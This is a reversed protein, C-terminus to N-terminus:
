FLDMGRSLNFTLLTSGGNQIQYNELNLRVKFINAYNFYFFLRVLYKTFMNIKIMFAVKGNSNM